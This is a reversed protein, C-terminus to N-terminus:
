AECNPALGPEFDADRVEKRALRWSSSHTYTPSNAMLVLSSDSATYQHFNDGVPFMLGMDQILAISDAHQRYSGQSFHVLDFVGPVCERVRVMFRGIFYVGDEGGESEEVLAVSGALLHNANSPIKAPGDQAIEVLTYYGTLHQPEEEMPEDVDAVGCAAVGVTVALFLAAADIACKVLPNACKDRM